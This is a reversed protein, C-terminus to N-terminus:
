GYLLGGDNESSRKSKMQHRISGERGFLSGFGFGTLIGITLDDLLIHCICM